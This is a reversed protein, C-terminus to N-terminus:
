EVVSIITGADDVLTNMMSLDHHFLPTETSPTDPPFVQLLFRLLREALSKAGETDAIGDEDDSTNLIREQDNLILRLHANLWARSRSFPGRSVDQAIHDGIFFQVSVTWNLTAGHEIARGHKTSVM